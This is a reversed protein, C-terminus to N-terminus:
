LPAKTKFIFRKIIKQNEEDKMDDSLHWDRFRRELLWSKGRWSPDVNEAIEELLKM